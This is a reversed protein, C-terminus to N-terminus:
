DLLRGARNTARRTSRRSRSTGGTQSCTAAAPTEQVATTQGIVWGAVPASLRSTTLLLKTSALPSANSVHGKSGRVTEWGLRCVTKESRRRCGPSTLASVISGNRSLGPVMSLPLSSRSSRSARVRARVSVRCPAAVQIASCLLGSKRATFTSRTSKRDAVKRCYRAERM